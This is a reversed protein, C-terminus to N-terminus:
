LNKYYVNHNAKKYGQKKFFKPSITTTAEIRKMGRKRSDAEISKLFKSGAGKQQYEPDISIWPVIVTNKKITRKGTKLMENKDLYQYSIKKDKYYHKTTAIGVEKKNKYKKYTLKKM